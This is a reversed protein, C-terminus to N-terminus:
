FISSPNEDCGAPWAFSFGQINQKKLGRLELQMRGAGDMSAYIIGKQGDVGLLTGAKAANGVFIKVPLAGSHIKFYDQNAQACLNIHGFCFSFLITICTLYKSM